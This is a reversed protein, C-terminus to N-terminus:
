RLWPCHRCGSSCCPRRLLSVATFVFLGSVPDVYGPDGAAMAAEHSALIEARRPHDPALRGPHPETLSRSAPAPLRDTVLPDEGVVRPSRVDSDITVNVFTGIGACIDFHRSLLRGHSVDRLEEEEPV